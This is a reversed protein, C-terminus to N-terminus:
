SSLDPLLAYMKDRMTKLAHLAQRGKATLEYMRKRRGGREATAGGMYSQLLGKDELRNTVVHIASINVDRGTHELIEHHIAVAYAQDQLLGTSLLVLEELEGLNEGKM